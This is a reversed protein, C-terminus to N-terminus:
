VAEKSFRNSFWLAIYLRFRSDSRTMHQGSLRLWRDLESTM